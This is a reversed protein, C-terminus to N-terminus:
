DNLQQQLDTLPVYQVGILQKKHVHGEKDKDYVHITQDWRGEPIFLRGPARLQDLLAAPTIPAAAGVHICDYPAEQAYGQRGDGTVLEVRGELYEPHDKRMNRTAMDTLQPVHDIGVVKGKDGVMYAMCATMYGSGSGVDLAKMGPQLYDQLYDLAYAHM